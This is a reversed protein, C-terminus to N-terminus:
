GTLTLEGAASSSPDRARRRIERFDTKLGSGRLHAPLWRSLNALSAIQAKDFAHFTAL